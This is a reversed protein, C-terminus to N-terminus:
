RWFVADSWVGPFLRKVDQYEMPLSAFEDGSVGCLIIPGCFGHGCIVCNFPLKALCSERNCIVVMDEAITKTEIKGGVYNQLNKLSNEVWVSRPMEGPRKTIVKIEM